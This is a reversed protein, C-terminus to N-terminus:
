PTFQGAFSVKAAFSVFNNSPSLKNQASEKLDEPTMQDLIKVEEYQDPERLSDSSQKPRSPILISGPATVPNSLPEGNNSSKERSKIENSLHEELAM